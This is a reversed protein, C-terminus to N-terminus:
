MVYGLCGSILTAIDLYTSLPVKVTLNAFANAM